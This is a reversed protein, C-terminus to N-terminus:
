SAQRGRVFECLCTMVDRYKLSSGTRTTADKCKAIWKGLTKVGVGTCSADWIVM